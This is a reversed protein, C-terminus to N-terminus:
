KWCFFRRVCRRPAPAETAHRPPPPVLADKPADKSQPKARVAATVCREAGGLADLESEEDRAAALHFLLAHDVLRRAERSSPKSEGSLAELEREFSRSM